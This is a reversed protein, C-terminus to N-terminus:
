KKGFKYFDNLKKLDEKYDIDMPIINNLEFGVLNKAYHGIYKKDLFRKTRHWYFTGNSACTDPYYQSRKKSQDNFLARLFGNKRSVLAKYPHYNYKSVGMVVDVKNNSRIIKFSKKLDKAKLLIATPYIICFYDPLSKNLDILSLFYERCADLEHAINTSNKHSRDVVEAGSKKAIESIKKCDTSVIVKNFIRSNKAEQIPYSILPKGLFKAINKEPFRQTWGSAPIFAIINKSLM